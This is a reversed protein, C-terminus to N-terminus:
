FMAASYHNYFTRIPRSIRPLAKFFEEDDFVEGHDFLDEAPLHNKFRLHSLREGNMRRVCTTQSVCRVRCHRPPMIRLLRHRLTKVSGLRNYTFLILFSYYFYFVKNNPLLILYCLFFLFYNDSLM